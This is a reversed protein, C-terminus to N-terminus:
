IYNSLFFFLALSIVSGAIFYKIFQKNFIFFYIFLFIIILFNIIGSPLQMSLFSFCMFLPLIFWLKNNKKIVALYFIFITIVSLILSHQYPFPTGIIPYCLIAVCISLIFNQLIHSNFNNLFIFFSLSILINFFSAHFVYANWNHGFISFFFAQLYDILIGSIVWFDKIPHQGETIYYGTDFFSFTDIPYLGKNAYYYNIYFAFIVILIKFVLKSHARKINM